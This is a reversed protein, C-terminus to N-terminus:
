RPGTHSPPPTMRKDSCRRPITANQLHFAGLKMAHCYLPHTESCLTDTRHCDHMAACLLLATYTGIIDCTPLTSWTGSAQCTIFSIGNLAYGPSCSIIAVEGFTTGRPAEFAEANDVVPGGCDALRCYPQYQHVILAVYKTRM